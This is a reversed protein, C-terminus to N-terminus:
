AFTSTGEFDFNPGLCTLDFENLGINEALVAFDWETTSLDSPPPHSAICVSSSDAALPVNEPPGVVNYQPTTSLPLCGPGASDSENLPPFPLMIDYVKRKAQEMLTEVPKRLRCAPSEMDLNMFSTYSQEVIPWIRNILLRDDCTRIEALTIALAQWPFFLPQLWRWAYSRTSNYVRFRSELAEVALKLVFGSSTPSGCSLDDIDVPRVALLRLFVGISYALERLYWHFDVTDPQLGVLQEDTREKFARVSEQLGARGETYLSTSTSVTLHRATEQAYSIVKFLTAEPLLRISPTHVECDTDLEVEGIAPKFQFDFLSSRLMPESAGNLSEQVDLWRIAHWLRCRIEREFPYVYSATSPNDLSLTHAIRLALALMTWSHRTHDHCRMAVLSIVISQLVTLDDTSLYDAHELACRNDRKYKSIMTGKDVGFCSLCTESSMTCTAAYYIASALAAPAPHCSDYHLYPKGALLYAQLSPWHLIKVIPDVQIFYLQLLQVREETRNFRKRETTPAKKPVTGTYQDLSGNYNKTQRSQFGAQLLEAQQDRYDWDLINECASDDRPIDDLATPLFSLSQNSFQGFPNATPSKTPVCGAM